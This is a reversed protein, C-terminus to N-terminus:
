LLTTFIVNAFPAENSSGDPRKLELRSPLTRRAISKWSPSVISSFASSSSMREATASFVDRYVDHELDSIPHPHAAPASTEEVLNRQVLTFLLGLAPLVLPRRRRLHGAPQHADREARSGDSITLTQPLLYPHQAVGWGWIVAAVAGVALARAGRQAGRHLLVLM